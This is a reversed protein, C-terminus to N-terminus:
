LLCIDNDRSVGIVCAKRICRLFDKGKTYSPLFLKGCVCHGKDLSLLTCSTRFFHSLFYVISAAIQYRPHTPALCVNRKEKRTLRLFCNVQMEKLGGM